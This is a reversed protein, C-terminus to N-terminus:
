LSTAACSPVQGLDPTATLFGTSADTGRTACRISTPTAAGRRLAKRRLTTSYSSIIGTWFGFRGM